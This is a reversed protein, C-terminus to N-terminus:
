CQRISCNKLYIKETRNFNSPPKYTVNLNGGIKEQCRVRLASFEPTVNFVKVLEPTVDTTLGPLEVDSVIVIAEVEALDRVILHEIVNKLEVAKVVKTAGFDEVLIVEIKSKAAVSSCSALLMTFSFMLMKNKMRNNKLEPNM